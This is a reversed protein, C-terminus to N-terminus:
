CTHHFRMFRDREERDFIIYMLILHIWQHSVRALETRPPKGVVEEDVTLAHADAFHLM